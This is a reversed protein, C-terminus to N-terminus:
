NIGWLTYDITGAAATILLSDIGGSFGPLWGGGPFASINASVDITTAGGPCADSWVKVTGAGSLRYNVFTVATSSDPGISRDSIGYQPAPFRVTDASAGTGATEEISVFYIGRIETKTDGVQGFAIGAMLLLGSLAVFAKKM